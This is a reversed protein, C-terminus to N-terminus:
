VFVSVEPSGLFGSIAGRARGGLGATGEPFGETAGLGAALLAEPSNSEQFSFLHLTAEPSPGVGCEGDCSTPLMGTVLGSNGFFGFGPRVRLTLGSVRPPPGTASLGSPLFLTVVGAGRGKSGFFGTEESFGVQGAAKSFGTVTGGRGETADCALADLGGPSPAEALGGAGPGCLLGRPSM